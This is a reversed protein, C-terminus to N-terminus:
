YYIPINVCFHDHLAPIGYESSRLPLSKYPNWHYSECIVNKYKLCCKPGSVKANKLSSPQWTLCTVPSALDNEQRHCRRDMATCRSFAVATIPVIPPVVEGKSKKEQSGKEEPPM